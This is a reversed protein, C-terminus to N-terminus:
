GTSSKCRRLLLSIDPAKTTVNLKTYSKLRLREPVSYRAAPHMGHWADRYLMVNPDTSKARLIM